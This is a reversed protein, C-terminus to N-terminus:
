SQVWTGLETTDMKEEEEDEEAIGEIKVNVSKLTSTNIGPSLNFSTSSDTPLTTSATSTSITINGM